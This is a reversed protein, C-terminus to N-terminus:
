IIILLCVIANNNQMIENIKNIRQTKVRLTTIKKIIVILITRLSKRTSTTIFIILRILTKSKLM